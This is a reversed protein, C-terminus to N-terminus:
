RQGHPNAPTQWDKHWNLSWLQELQVAEVHGDSFSVNVSANPLPKHSNVARIQLGGSGHRAICCRGMFGTTPTNNANPEGVYLDPPAADGERPWLDPWISDVFMPTQVPNKIDTDRKFFSSAYETMYVSESYLWGNIAYSGTPVALKTASPWFWAHGADGATTTSNTSQATPCLRIADVNGYTEILTSMWLQSVAAYGIGKSYDSQYMIAATALQKLNNVCKIQQAKRKAKSLAPLLMAALIAIIAIVVLLEILTFGSLGTIRQLKTKM